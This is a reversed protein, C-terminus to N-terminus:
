LHKAEEGVKDSKHCQHDKASLVVRRKCAAFRVFFSCASVALLSTQAALAKPMSKYNQKFGRLLLSGKGKRICLSMRASPACCRLCSEQSILPYAINIIAAFSAGYYARHEISAIRIIKPLRFISSISRMGKRNQKIDRLFIYLFCLNNCPCSM